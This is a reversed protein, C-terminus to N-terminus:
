TRWVKWRKVRAHWGDADTIAFCHRLFSIGAPRLTRALQNMADEMSVGVAVENIVRSFEPGTPHPAERAM